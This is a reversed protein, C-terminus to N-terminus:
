SQHRYNRGLICCRPICNPRLRNYRCRKPNRWCLWCTALIRSHSQTAQSRYKRSRRYTHLTSIRHRLNNQEGSCELSKEAVAWVQAWAQGLVLAVIHSCCSIPQLHCTHNTNCYMPKCNRHLHNRQQQQAVLAMVLHQALIAAVVRAEAVAMVEAEAMVEAM